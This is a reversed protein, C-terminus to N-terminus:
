TCCGGKVGRGIGRRVSHLFCYVVTTNISIKIEGTGTKYVLSLLVFSTQYKMVQMLHAEKERQRRFHSSQTLAWLM